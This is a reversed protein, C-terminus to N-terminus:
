PKVAVVDNVGKLALVDSVALSQSRCYASISAQGGSSPLPDTLHIRTLTPTLLALLLVTLHKPIQKKCKSSGSRRWGSGARFFYVTRVRLRIGKFSGSLRDHCSCHSCVHSRRCVIDQCRTTNVIDQSQCRTGLGEARPTFMKKRQRLVSFM